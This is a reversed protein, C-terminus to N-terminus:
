VNWGGFHFNSWVRAPWLGTEVPSWVWCGMRDTSKLHPSAMPLGKPTGKGEWIAVVFSGMFNIDGHNGLLVFAGEGFICILLAGEM